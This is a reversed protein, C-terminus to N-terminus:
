QVKIVKKPVEKIVAEKKKLLKIKLVGNKYVAKVDQELDVSVPLTMSKEFSKYSFEKRSYDEDEHKEEEKKEGCVHLVDDEISVEFDEKNFSPAAFEIEFDKDHEKVNMAPMLSNEELFDDNFVDEFRSLNNLNYNFREGRWPALLNNSWPSLFRSEFPSLGNRKRRKMLTTM